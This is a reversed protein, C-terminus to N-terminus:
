KPLPGWLDMGPWKMSSAGGATNASALNNISSEKRIRVLGKIFAQISSQYGKFLGNICFFVAWVVDMSLQEMMPARRIVKREDYKEGEPRCYISIMMPIQNAGENNLNHLELEIRSAEAFSIIKEEALPIDEGYVKLSNPLFYKQGQIEFSEIIPAEYIEMGKDTIEVPQWYFTSLVIYRLYQDYFVTRTESDIRDMLASPIGSLASIVEGYYRPFNLILDEETIKESIKDYHLEAAKRAVKEAANLEASAKYLELLKDPIQIDCVKIFQKLTIEDWSQPAQYSGDGIELKIM